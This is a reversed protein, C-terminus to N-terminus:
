KARILYSNGKKEWRCGAIMCLETLMDELPPKKFSVTIAQTRQAESLGADLKIQTDTAVSLKEIVTALSEGNFKLEGDKWYTEIGIAAKETLAGNSYHGAENPTLILTDKGGKAATVQVKGTVVAVDAINDSCKVNFSTGLVKVQVSQADIVFPQQENRTVDFFAEGELKVNRVNAAFTKPYSIKSGQKLTIHSADPLEITMNGDTAAVTIMNSAFPNWVLIAIVLIAAIASSYKVWSPMAIVKGKEVETNTVAEEKFDIRNSVKEWAPAADFQPGDSILADAEQWMAAMEAYAKSNEPSEQLWAELMQREAEDAEGQLVKAIIIYIQDEM